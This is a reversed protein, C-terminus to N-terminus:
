PAEVGWTRFAGCKTCGYVWRYGHLAIDSVGAIPQKHKFEHQTPEGKCQGECLLLAKTTEVYASEAFNM